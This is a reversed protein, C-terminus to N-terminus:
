IQEGVEYRIFRRVRINEGTQAIKEAVLEGITQEPNKIWPQSLLCITELYKALKGEVIQDIVKEPKGEVLVEQRYLNRQNEKISDPVDEPGVFEPKAWAIHMTLDHALTKFVETRAVFDTECNLELMVGIRDGHHLYFDIIGEMTAREAKKEAKALGKKRLFETARELDGKCEELAKKCDMIGAGTKERLEKIKKPNIM